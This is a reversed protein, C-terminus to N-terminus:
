RPLKALFESIREPPAPVAPAKLRKAKAACDACVGFALVSPLSRPTCLRLLEAAAGLAWAQDRKPPDAPFVARCEEMTLTRMTEMWCALEGAREAVEEGSGRSVVAEPTVIRPPLMAGGREAAGQALVERLRRGAEAAPVVVMVGSLDLMGGEHGAALWGAVQPLM